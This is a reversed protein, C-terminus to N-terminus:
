IEDSAPRPKMLRRKELHRLTLVIRVVHVLKKVALNASTQDFKVNFKLAKVAGKFIFAPKTPEDFKFIFLPAPPLNSGFKIWIQADGGVSFLKVKLPKFRM